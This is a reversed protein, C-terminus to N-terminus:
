AVQQPLGPSRGYKAFLAEKAENYAIFAPSFNVPDTSKGTNEKNPETHEM